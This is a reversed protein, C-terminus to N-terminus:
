SSFFSTNFSNIFKIIIKLLFKSLKIKLFYTGTIALANIIKRVIKKEESKNCPKRFDGLDRWKFDRDAALPAWL